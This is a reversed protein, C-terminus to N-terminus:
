GGQGLFCKKTHDSVMGTAQMFAYCITPGVFKFGRKKLDKSMQESEKTTAPVDAHEAWDNVIPEGGVFQWIYRDFSGFERQISLVAMANTIVSEIKQRNRIISKDQILKHVRDTDYYAIKEPDFQDFAKRYSERRKLITIWSLGAQAGELSLMEFLKHDDHVPRGWEYDHYDIYIQDDTVWECRKKNM